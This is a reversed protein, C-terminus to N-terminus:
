TLPLRSTQFVVGETGCLSYPQQCSQTTSQGTFIRDPNARVTECMRTFSARTPIAGDAEIAMSLRQALARLNRLHSVADAFIKVALDDSQQRFSNAAVTQESSRAAAFIGLSIAACLVLVSLGIVFARVVGANLRSPSRGGLPGLLSERTAMPSREAALTAPSRIPV